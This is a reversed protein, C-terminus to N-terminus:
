ETPLAAGNGRMPLPKACPHLVGHPTLILVPWPTGHIFRCEADIIGPVPIWAIPRFQFSWTEQGAIAVDVYYSMDGSSQVTWIKAHGHQRDKSDIGLVARRIHPMSEWLAWGFLTLIVAVFLLGYKGESIAKHSLVLALLLLVTILVKAVWPRDMRRLFQLQVDIGVHKMALLTPPLLLRYRLNTM